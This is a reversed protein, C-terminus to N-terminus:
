IVFDFSKSLPLTRARKGTLDFLANALAPASPPTGPEGVGGMTANRELIQVAFRPTNLMRLADYDPFNEQEVEGGSFTIEGHVAASLGYVAGSTMQAEINAPDLATGVDCAIWCCCM